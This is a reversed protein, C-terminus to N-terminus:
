QYAGVLRPRESLLLVNEFAVFLYHLLSFVLKALCTLFLGSNPNPLGTKHAYSWTVGGDASDAM